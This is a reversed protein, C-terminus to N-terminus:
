QLPRGRLPRRHLRKASTVLAGHALTTVILEGDQLATAAREIAREWRVNGAAKAKAAEVVAAFKSSNFTMARNGKTTRVSLPM